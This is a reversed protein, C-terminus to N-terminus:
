AVSKVLYAASAPCLSSFEATGSIAPPASARDAPRYGHRRFFPAATTTLLHLRVTGLTAVRHEVEALISSGLGAGRRDVVVVLSRLLRDPGDGEIGGFGALGDDEFRLFLRGPERLDGAPLGAAALAAEMEFMDAPAVVDRRLRAM